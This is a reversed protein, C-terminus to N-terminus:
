GEAAAKIEMATCLNGLDIIFVDVQPGNLIAMGQAYTGAVETLVMDPSSAMADRMAKQFGLDDDVLAVRISSLYTKNPMSSGSESVEGAFRLNGLLNEAFLYM